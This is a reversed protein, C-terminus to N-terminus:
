GKVIKRKKKRTIKVRYEQETEEIEYIAGQMQLIKKASTNLTENSDGNLQTILQKPESNRGVTPTSMNALDPVPQSDEKQNPTEVDIKEPSKQPTEHSPDAPPPDNEKLSSTSPSIEATKIISDDFSSKISLNLPPGLFSNSLKPRTQPESQAAISEESSSSLSRGIAVSSAEIPSVKPPKKPLQPSKKDLIPTSTDTPLIEPFFVKSFNVM